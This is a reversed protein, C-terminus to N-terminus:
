PAPPLNKLMAETQQRIEASLDPLQLLKDAEIKAQSVNSEAVYTQAISLQLRQRATGFAASQAADTNENAVSLGREFRERAGSPYGMQVYVDGLQQYIDVGEILSMKAFILPFLTDAVARWNKAAREKQVRDLLITRAQQYQQEAEAPQGANGLLDGLGNYAFMVGYPLIGPRQLIERYILAEQAADGEKHHTAAINEYASEINSEDMAPTQIIRRYTARGKDSDGSEVYTRALDDLTSTRTSKSQNPDALMKEYERRANDWQKTERYTDALLRRAIERNIPLVDQYTVANQWTEIARANLEQRRFTLGLLTLAEVTEDPTQALKLLAESSQQAAPYDRNSLQQSALEQQQQFTASAAWVTPALLLSALLLLTKM